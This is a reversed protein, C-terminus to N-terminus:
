PANSRLGAPPPEPALVVGEFGRLELRTGGTASGPSTSFLVRFAAFDRPLTPAAPRGSFNLLVCLRREAVSRVYALVDSSSPLLAFDGVALAPESRRLAMLARYVSLLSSVDARQASVNVSAYDAALPLWPSGTTFGAGASADWQMPTRVPDRGLGLGPVNKEWPDQVLEPAIPVDRMGIEDGYYLTPTGRLTLLLLAALRTHEGGVRSAVRSRDHNGLVWNPWAGKPLAAEYTRALEAIAAAEWRAGILHFNFPLHM